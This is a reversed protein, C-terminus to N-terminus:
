QQFLVFLTYKAHLSKSGGLIGLFNIESYFQVRNTGKLLHFMTPM